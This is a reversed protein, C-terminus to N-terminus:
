FGTFNTTALKLAENTLNKMLVHELYPLFTTGGQFNKSGGPFIKEGSREEFNDITTGHSMKPMTVPVMISSVPVQPGGIM